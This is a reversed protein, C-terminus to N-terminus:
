RRPPGGRWALRRIAIFALPILWWPAWRGHGYPLGATVVFLVVAVALAATPGAWRAGRTVLGAPAPATPPGGAPRGSPLDTTLEDLDGRTRASIARGVREDFEDQTLRGAQFHESLEAAVRDRDADSVRMRALDFRDAGSGSAPGAARGDAGFGPQDEGGFDGYV